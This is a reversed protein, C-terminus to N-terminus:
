FFWRSLFLGAPQSNRNTAAGDSPFNPASPQIRVLSGKAVRRDDARVLQAVLANIFVLNLVGVHEICTRVSSGASQDLPKAIMALSTTM